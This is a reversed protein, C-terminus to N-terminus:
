SKLQCVDGDNLFEVMMMMMMMMMMM